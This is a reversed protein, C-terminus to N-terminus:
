VMKFPDIIITVGGGGHQIISLNGTTHIYTHTYKIPYCLDKM